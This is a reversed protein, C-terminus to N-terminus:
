IVIRTASCKRTSGYSNISYVIKQGDPSWAPFIKMGASNTFRRQNTGDPNMMYIEYYGNRDSMFMITRGDPSLRPREDHYTTSATLQKKNNGDIDMIWLQSYSDFYKMYLIKTGDPTFEQSYEDQASNTLRLQNSGNRNMIYVEYNGDRKSQFVIKGNISNISPCMNEYNGETLRVLNTGDSNMSYIQRVGTRDSDFVIMGDSINSNDNPLIIETANNKCCTTSFVILLFLPRFVKIYKKM